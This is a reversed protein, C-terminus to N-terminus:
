ARIAAEPAAEPERGDIRVTALAGPVYPAPAAQRGSALWVRSDLERIPQYPNIRALLRLHQVKLPVVVLSLTSMAVAWRWLDFHGSQIASMFEAYTMWIAMAGLLESSRQTPLALLLCVALWFAGLGATEVTLTDTVYGATLAFAILLAAASALRVIQGPTIRSLPTNM